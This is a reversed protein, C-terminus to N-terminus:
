GAGPEGALVLTPPPAASTGRPASPAAQRAPRQMGGSSAPSSCPQTPARAATGQPASRAPPPTVLATRGLAARQQRPPRSRASTGRPAPRALPPPGSPTDVRRAACSCLPSPCVACPPLTPPTKSTRSVSIARLVRPPLRARAAMAAWEGHLPAPLRAPAPQGLPARPAHPTPRERPTRARPAACPPPTTVCLAHPDCM